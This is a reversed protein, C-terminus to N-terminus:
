FVEANGMDVLYVAVSSIGLSDFSCDQMLFLMLCEGSSIETADQLSVLCNGVTKAKFIQQLHSSLWLIISTFTLELFM